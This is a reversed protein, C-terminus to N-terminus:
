AFRADVYRDWSGLPPRPGAAHTAVGNRQRGSGREHLRRAEGEGADRRLERQQLGRWQEWEAFEDDGGIVQDLPAVRTVLGRQHAVRIENCEGRGGASGSYSLQTGSEPDRAHARLGAHLREGVELEGPPADVNELQLCFEEIPVSREDSTEVAEITTLASDDLVVALLMARIARLVQPVLQPEFASAILPEPDKAQM